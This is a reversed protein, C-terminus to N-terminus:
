RNQVKICDILKTNIVKHYKQRSAHLYKAVILM